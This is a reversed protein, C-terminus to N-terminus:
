TNVLCRVQGHHIESPGSDICGQITIPERNHKFTMTLHSYDTTIPGLLKLWAVGLVIDTGGLAMVHQDLTFARGQISVTVDCCVKDCTIETDNGVMVALAPIPQPVLHLFHALFDHVFNHTSGGDM